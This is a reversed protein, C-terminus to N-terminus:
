REQFEVQDRRIVVDYNGFFDHGLLGIGLEPGAVAVLVNRAVVGSVQMSQVYGLPFAVDKASATDVKAQGVPTLNLAAAMQQTILTGSAGTDVIMEFTRDGNFIVDIVPTGGVRRVIPASFHRGEGARPAPIDPQPTIPQDPTEVPPQSELVVVGTSNSNIASQNAQQQAYALNRKYESLKDQALEHHPNSSPVSTMLEIAQQWRSAVLRWDDQSQASQGISVASSARAIARQYPDLAAIPPNAAKPALTAPPSAFSPRNAKPQTPAQISSVQHSFFSPHTCSANTLAVISSLVVFAARPQLRKPM